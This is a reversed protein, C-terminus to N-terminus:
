CCIRCRISVRHLMIPIDTIALQRHQQDSVHRTAQHIYLCSSIWELWERKRRHQGLRIRLLQLYSYAICATPLFVGFVVLLVKSKKPSQSGTINVSICFFFFFFFFLNRKNGWKDRNPVGREASPVCRVGYFVIKKKFSNFLLKLLYLSLSLHQRM